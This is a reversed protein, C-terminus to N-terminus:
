KYGDSSDSDNNIEKYKRSNVIVKMEDQKNTTVSFKYDLASIDNPM